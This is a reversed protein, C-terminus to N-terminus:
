FTVGLLTNCLWAPRGTRAVEVSDIYVRPEHALLMAGGSVEVLLHRFLVIDVGAAALWGPSWTARDHGLYGSSGEGHVAVHLLSIGTQVYPVFRWLVPAMLSVSAAALAQDMTASGAATERRPRSGLAGAGVAMRLWPRVGYGFELFPSFAPAFGSFSGTALIGAALTSRGVTTHALVEHQRGKSLALTRVFSDFMRARIFDVVRVALVRDARDGAEDDVSLHGVSTKGTACDLFWVEVAGVAGISPGGPRQAGPKGVLAVVAAPAIERAVIDLQGLPEIGAPTEVFRIEFGVSAAEGRLRTLADMMPLITANPVIVAIVTSPPM